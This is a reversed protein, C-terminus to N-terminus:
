GVAHRAREDSSGGPEDPDFQDLDEGGPPM